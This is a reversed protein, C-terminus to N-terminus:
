ARVGPLYQTKGGRRVATLIQNRAPKVSLGVHVWGAPPFELILQDVGLMFAKHAALTAAVDAPSMGTVEIDAALGLCHASSLSGGVRRNVAPARYGSAVFIPRRLIARAQELKEALTKLNEVARPPPVNRLGHRTATQSRTLEALSFNATLQM